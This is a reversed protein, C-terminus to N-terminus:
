YNYKSRFNTAKSSGTSSTSSTTSTGTPYFREKYLSDFIDDGGLSTGVTSQASSYAADRLAKIKGEYVAANDRLRPIMTIYERDEQTGWAAGTIENRKTSLLLQYKTALDAIERGKTQGFRKLIAEEKEGLWGIDNGVLQRTEEIVSLLSVLAWAGQADKKAEATPLSGVTRSWLSDINSINKISNQQPGTFNASSALNQKAIALADSQATGGTKGGGLKGMVQSVYENISPYKGNGQRIDGAPTDLKKVGGAGGYWEAAMKRADGGNRQAIDRMMATRLSEQLEPSNLFKQRNEPTDKLGIKPLHYPMIQYKGLAGTGANVAKYNNGSEQGSIANAFATLATTDTPDIYSNGGASGLRAIAQNKAFDPNSQLLKEFEAPLMTMMQAQTLGLKYQENLQAMEKFVDRQNQQAYGAYMNKFRQPLIGLRTSEQMLYAERQAPDSIMMANQYIGPMELSAINTEYDLQKNQYDMFDSKMQRAINLKETELEKLEGVIQRRRTASTNKAESILKSTNIVINQIKSIGSDVASKLIGDAIQPVFGPTGVLNAQRISSEYMQNAMIQDNKLMGMQSMLFGLETNLQSDETTLAKSLESTYQDIKKFTPAALPDKYPDYNAINQVQNSPATTTPTTGTAPGTSTTPAEAQQNVATGPETGTMTNNLSSLRSPDAKIANLLRTNLAANNAGVYYDNIGYAKAIRTRNNADSSIGQQDLFDVLSVNTNGGFSNIFNTNQTDLTRGMSSSAIGTAPSQVMPNSSQVSQGTQTSQGVPSTPNQTSQGWQISQDNSAM